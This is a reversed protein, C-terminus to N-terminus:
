HIVVITQSHQSADSKRRDFLKAPREFMEGEDNPAADEVEFEAALKKAATEDHTVGSPVGPLRTPYQHPPEFLATIIYLPSLSTDTLHTKSLERLHMYQVLHLLMFMACSLLHTSAYDFSALPGDQPWGYSPAPIHDDSCLAVTAGAAASAAVGAAM